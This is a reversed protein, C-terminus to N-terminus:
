SRPGKAVRRRFDVPVGDFVESGEASLALGVGGWAGLAADARGGYYLRYKGGAMPVACPVGVDGSDWAGAESSASLIPRNSM